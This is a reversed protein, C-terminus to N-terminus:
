SKPKFFDTIKASKRQEKPTEQNSEIKLPELDSSNIHESVSVTEPNFNEDTLSKPCTTENSIDDIESSNNTELIEDSKQRSIKDSKEDVIQITANKIVSQEEHASDIKSRKSPPNEVDSSVNLANDIEDTTPVERELTEEEILLSKSENQPSEDNSSDIRTTVDEHNMDSHTMQSVLELHQKYVFKYLKEPEDTLKELRFENM